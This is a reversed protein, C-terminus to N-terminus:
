CPIWSCYKSTAPEADLGFAVCDEFVDGLQDIEHKVDDNDDYDVTDVHAFSTSGNLAANAALHVREIHDYFCQFLDISYWCKRCVEGMLPKEMFLTHFHNFIIKPMICKVAEDSNLPILEGVSELCLLCVM